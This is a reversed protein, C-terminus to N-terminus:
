KTKRERESIKRQGSRRASQQVSAAFNPIRTFTNKTVMPVLERGVLIGYSNLITLIIYM